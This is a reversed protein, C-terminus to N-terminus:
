NHDQRRGESNLLTKTFDQVKTKSYILLNNGTMQQVFLNSYRHRRLVPIRGDSGGPVRGDSVGPVRGDSVGPVRGDSVGPVRGDSVRAYAALWCSSM